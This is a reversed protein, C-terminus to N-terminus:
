KMEVAAVNVASFCDYRVEEGFALLEFFLFCLVFGEECGVCLGEVVFLFGVLCEGDLGKDFFILAGCLLRLLIMGCDKM